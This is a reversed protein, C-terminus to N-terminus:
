KDFTGNRIRKFMWIIFLTIIIDLVGSIVILWLSNNTGGFFFSSFYLGSPINCLPFFIAVAIWVMEAQGKQYDSFKIRIKRKHNKNRIRFFGIVGCVVVIMDAIVSGWLPRTDNVVQTDMESFYLMGPISCVALAIFIITVLAGFQDRKYNNYM